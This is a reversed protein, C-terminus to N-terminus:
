SIEACLVLLFGINFMTSNLIAQGVAPSIYKPKSPGETTVSLINVPM